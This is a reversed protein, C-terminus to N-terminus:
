VWFFWIQLVNCAYKHLQICPYIAFVPLTFSSKPVVYHLENSNLIRLMWWFQQRQTPVWNYFTSAIDDSSNTGKFAALLNMTPYRCEMTTLNDLIWSWCNNISWQRENQSMTQIKYTCNKGLFATSLKIIPLDRRLIRTKGLHLALLWKREM